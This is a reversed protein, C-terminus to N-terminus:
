DHTSERDCPFGGEEAGTEVAAQGCPARGDPVGGWGWVQEFKNVQPDKQVQGNKDVQSLPCNAKSQFIKKRM